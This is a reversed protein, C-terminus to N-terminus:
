NNDQALNVCVLHIPQTHSVRESLIFICCHKTWRSYLTQLDLNCTQQQKHSLFCFLIKALSESKESWICVSKSANQM